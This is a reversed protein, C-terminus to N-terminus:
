RFTFLFEGITNGMDVQKEWTRGDASHATFTANRGTIRNSGNTVVATEGPGFSWTGFTSWGSYGCRALLLPKPTTPNGRLEGSLKNNKEYTSKNQLESCIEDGPDSAFAKLSVAITTGTKNAVKIIFGDRSTGIGSNGSTGVKGDVECGSEWPYCFLDATAPQSTVISFGSTLASTVFLSGIFRLYNM